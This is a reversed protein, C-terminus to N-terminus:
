KSSHVKNFELRDRTLWFNPLNRDETGPPGEILELGAYLPPRPNVTCVPQPCHRM